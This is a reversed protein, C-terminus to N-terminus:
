EAFLAGISWVLAIGAILLAIQILTNRWRDEKHIEPILDAAAIYIFVGAAFPILVTKLTEANLFYFYSIVAAIVTMQAVLVNYGLIRRRSMGSHLLVAFDGIEQPVEHFFVAISTAIGLPINILFSAAILMGDIFNHVADGVLILISNHHVESENKNYHHHHWILLKELIFFTLLGVITFVFASPGLGLAIAEPLLDLFAAGILAGAAFSVLSLSAKKAQKERWLLFLGGILSAIGGLLSFVIVYTLIM